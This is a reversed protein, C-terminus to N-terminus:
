PSTPSPSCSRATTMSASATASRRRPETPGSKRISAATSSWCRARVPDCLSRAPPGALYRSTETVGAVGDGIWFVGNPKMISIPRAPARTPRTCSAPEERRLTRGAVPGGPVHRREDRLGAAEGQGRLSAALAGLSGFPRDDPGKWFLRLDDHRPDFACVTFTAGDFIKPACAAAAAALGVLFFLAAFGSRRM